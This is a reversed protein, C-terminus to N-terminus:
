SCDGWAVSARTLPIPATSARHAASSYEAGVMWRAEMKLLPNSIFRGGIGRTAARATQRRTPRENRLEELPAGLAGAAAGVGAVAAAGVGTAAGAARLSSM